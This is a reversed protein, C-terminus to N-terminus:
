YQTCRISVYDLTCTSGAVSTIIRASRGPTQSMTSVFTGSSTTALSLATTSFNTGDESTQLALTPFTTCASDNVSIVYGRCGDTYFAASTSNLSNLNITRDFFRRLQIGVATGQNSSISFTFSPTTGGITWVFRFKTTNITLNPTYYVGTATVREWHWEDVWTTGNDPSEQFVLDLTPNTGSVATVNMEFVANNNPAAQTVTGSNGTTTRAASGVQAGFSQAAPNTTVTGAVTFTGTGAVNRQGLDACPLPNFYANETSSGSTFANIRTRFRAAHIPCYVMGTAALTTIPSANATANNTCQTANWTVDDNSEEFTITNTGALTRQLSVCRYGLVNTDAIPTANLASGSGTVNLSDAGSITVSSGVKTGWTTSTQVNGSGDVIQTKQTGNTQNASTALPTGSIVVSPMTGINVTGTIPLPSPGTVNVSFTAGPSPVANVNVVGNADTSISRKLGSGDLGSVSIPNDAPASGVPAAGSVIQAGHSSLQIDGRQGASLTPLTSSYVGGIKVPNGSDTTGSAVNGLIPVPSALADIIVHSGSPLPSAIVVTVPVSSVVSVPQVAPLNNISVVGSVPLPSTIVNVDGVVAIPSPINVVISGSVPLPSAPSVNVANKNSDQWQIPGPQLGGSVGVLSLVAVASISFIGLKKLSKLVM